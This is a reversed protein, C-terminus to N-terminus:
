IFLNKHIGHNMHNVMLDRVKQQTERGIGMNINMLIDAKGLIRKFREVIVLKSFNAQNKAYIDFLPVFGQKLCLVNHINVDGFVGIFLQVFEKLLVFDAFGIEQAFSVIDDKTLYIPAYGKSKDRKSVYLADLITRFKLAKVSPYITVRCPFQKLNDQLLGWFTISDKYMNLRDESSESKRKAEDTYVKREEDETLNEYVKLTCVIKVDKHSKKYGYFRKVAEIRHNGDIIRKMGNKKNIILIGVPNKGSLIAGHIQRLHKPSIQRRNKMVEFHEISEPTIVFRELKYEREFTKKEM